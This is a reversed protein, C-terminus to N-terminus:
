SSLTVAISMLHTPLSGKRGDYVLAANTTFLM